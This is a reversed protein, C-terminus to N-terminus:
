NKSVELFVSPTRYCPKYILFKEINEHKYKQLRKIKDIKEEKLPFKTKHTTKNYNYLEKAPIVYVAEPGNCSWGFGFVYFLDKIPLKLENTSIYNEYKNIHEREIFFDEKNKWKCEVAIRDGPKYIKNSNNICELLLDPSSSSLARYGDIYKDGRWELLKWFLKDNPNSGDKSINSNKVVWEEFRDGEYKKKDREKFFQFATQITAIIQNLIEM